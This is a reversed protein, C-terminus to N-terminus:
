FLRTTDFNGAELTILANGINEIINSAVLARKGLISAAFDGALGHIYVGLRAASLPELGQALLGGILGSLVDGSGATAMGDNGTLNLYIREHEPSAIITPNGKVVLVGGLKQAWVKAKDLKERIVEDTTIGLLNALEGHHPTFVVPAVIREFVDPNKSLAYLGDADILTPIKSRLVLRQVLEVTEFYRGLGPGVVLADADEIMKIIEGLARLSLVRKKRVEPLPKIVTETLKVAMIDVLSKPIGLLCYGAGARLFANCVLTAAGTYGVSGAIIIGKGFDGKHGDPKRKPLFKILEM